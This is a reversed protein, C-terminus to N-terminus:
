KKAWFEDTRSNYGIVSLELYRALVFSVIDTLLPKSINYKFKIDHIYDYCIKQRTNFTKVNYPTFCVVM